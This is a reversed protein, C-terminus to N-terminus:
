GLQVNGVVSWNSGDYRVERIQRDVLYYCRAMGYEPQLTVISWITPTLCAIGTGSDPTGLSDPTSSTRWGTSDDIWTMQLAGTSSQWLIYNNMASDTLNSTRPVSFAGIPTEPPMAIVPVDTSLGTTPQQRGEVLLKQDDRQYIFNEGGEMGGSVSYPVVAFASHNQCALGLNRQTYSGNYYIIEQVQNSDDQLVLSPWYAAFRSSKGAKWGNPSMSGNGNWTQSPIEQERFWWEQVKGADNVYFIEIQTFNNGSIVPRDFFMTSNFSSIAIPSGMKVDLNTFTTMTSWGDDGSNYQMLRLNGDDGQYVLRISFDSTGTWWGTVGISSGAYVPSSSISSSTASSSPSSSSTSAASSPSTTSSVSATANPTILAKSNHRSKLIGGVVAGVIVLLFVVAAVILWITRKRSKLGKNSKESDVGSPFNSTVELAEYGRVAELGYAIQAKTSVELEAFYPRQVVELGEADHNFAM